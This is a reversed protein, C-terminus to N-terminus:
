LAGELTADGDAALQWAGKDADWAYVSAEDSGRGSRLAHLRTVALAGEHDEELDFAVWCPWASTPIDAEVHWIGEGAVIRSAQGEWGHADPLASEVFRRIVEHAVIQHSREM